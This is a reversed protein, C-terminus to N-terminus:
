DAIMSSQKILGIDARPDGCGQQSPCCAFLRQNLLKEHFQRERSSGYLQQFLGHHYKLATADVPDHVLAM